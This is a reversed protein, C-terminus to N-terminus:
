KFVGAGTGIIGLIAIITTKLKQRKVSKKLRENDAELLALAKYMNDNAQKIDKVMKTLLYNKAELDQRTAYTVDMLSDYRNSYMYAMDAWVDVKRALEDCLSDKRDVSKLELVERTLAKIKVASDTLRSKIFSLNEKLRRETSDRGDIVYQLSDVTIQSFYLDSVLSENQSQLEQYDKNDLSPAQKPDPVFVYMLIAGIIAGCLATVWVNKM